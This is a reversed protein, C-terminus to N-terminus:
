FLLYRYSLSFLLLLFCHLLFFFMIIQLNLHSTAALNAIGHLLHCIYISITFPYRFYIIHVPFVTAYAHWILPAQTPPASPFRTHKQICIYTNNHRFLNLFYIHIYISSLQCTSSAARTRITM